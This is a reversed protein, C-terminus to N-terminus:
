MQIGLMQLARATKEFNQNVIEENSLESKKSADNADENNTVTPEEINYTISPEDNEDNSQEALTDVSAVPQDVDNDNGLDSLIRVREDMLTKNIDLTYTQLKMVIHKLNLIESALLEYRHNFEIMHENILEQVLPAIDQTSQKVSLEPESSLPDSIDTNSNQSVSVFKEIFLLRNDLQTIVQQLTLGKTPNIMPASNVPAYSKQASEPASMRNSPASAVNPSYVPTPKSMSNVPMSRNNNAANQQPPAPPQFLPSALLQNPGARRRKAATVSNSM